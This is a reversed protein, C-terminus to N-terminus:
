RSWRLMKGVSFLSGLAGVGVGILVLGISIEQVLPMIPVLTLMKSFLFGGTIDLIYKYGFITTLIPIIAGIFGIIMGEIIFPWRIYWNTAGVTRMISIERRRSHISVRITNSILFVAIVGLAAVIILGINRVSEMGKVFVATEDGGYKAKEVGEIGRIKEAIGSIQEGSSSEVLFANRMPNNEGRFSGYMEEADESDSLRIYAELEEDKSSFTVKSVYEISKIENEIRDLNEQSEFEPNVQVHIQVSSELQTTVQSLNSSLLLFVAMILLTVTVSSISSLALPFNRIVGFFGEKIHRTIRSM